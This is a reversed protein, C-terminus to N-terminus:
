LVKIFVRNKSEFDFINKIDMQMVEKQEIVKYITSLACFLFGTISAKVNTTNFM